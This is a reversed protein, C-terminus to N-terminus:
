SLEIMDGRDVTMFEYTAFANAEFIRFGIRMGKGPNIHLFGWNLRIALQDNKEERRTKASCLEPIFVNRGYCSSRQYDLVQVRDNEINVFVSKIFHVHPEQLFFLICFGEQETFGERKKTDLIRRFDLKLIQIYLFEDDWSAELTCPFSRFDHNRLYNIVNYDAILNQPMHPVNLVAGHKSNRKLLELVERDLDGYVLKKIDISSFDKMMRRAFDANESVSSKMENQRPIHVIKGFVGDVCHLAFYIDDLIGWKFARNYVQDFDIIESKILIYLALEHLLGIDIEPKGKGYWIYERFDNFFHTTFHQLLNILYDNAELKLLELGNLNHIEARNFLENPNISSFDSEGFDFRVKHYPCRHIEVCVSMGDPYEKIVPEMHHNGYALFPDDDISADTVKVGALELKYGRNGLLRCALRMDNPHIYLDIDGCRRSFINHFFEDGLILGKLLMMRIGVSNFTNQIKKLEAYLFTNEIKVKTLYEASRSKIEEDTDLFEYFKLLRNNQKLIEAIDLGNSKCYDSFCYGIKELRNM